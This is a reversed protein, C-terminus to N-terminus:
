GYQITGYKTFTSKSSGSGKNKNVKYTCCSDKQSYRQKTRPRDQIKSKAYFSKDGEFRLRKKERDKEKEQKSEEIQQSFVMLQSIDMDEALMAM